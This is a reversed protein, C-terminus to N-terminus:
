QQHLPNLTESQEAVIKGVESQIRAKAADIQAQVAAVEPAEPQYEKLLGARQMELKAIEGQLETVVPNDTLSSSAILRAPTQKLQRALSASQAQLARWESEAQARATQTDAINAVRAQTEDDLAVAGSQERFNRLRVEATRLDGRI